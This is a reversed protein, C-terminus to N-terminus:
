AYKLYTAVYLTHLTATYIPVRDASGGDSMVTVGCWVVCWGVEDVEDKEKGLVRDDVGCVFGRLLYWIGLIVSGAPILM